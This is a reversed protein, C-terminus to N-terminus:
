KGSGAIRYVRGREERTSTISLGLKKKLVGSIVGRISHAQWGTAKVMEATSAGKDHRLLDLLKAQKSGARPSAAATDGKKAKRAGSKRVPPRRPKSSSPKGIRSKAARKADDGTPTKDPEAATARLGASTIVLTLPHGADSERWIAAPGAAPREAVVKKKLLDNVISDAAERDLRLKRPLPLILGDNRNAAAALVIRQTDTLRPM